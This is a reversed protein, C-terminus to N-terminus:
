AYLQNDQKIRKKLFFFHLIYDNKVILLVNKVVCIFLLVVDLVICLYSSLGSFSNQYLDYIIEYIKDSYKDTNDNILMIKYAPQYSVNKVYPLWICVGTIITERNSMIMSLLDSYLKIIDINFTHIATVCM